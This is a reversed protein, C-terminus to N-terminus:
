NESVPAVTIDRLSMNLVHHNLGAVGKRSLYIQRSHVLFVWPADKRVIQVMTKIIESRRRCPMLTCLEDYLKDFEANSYSGYNFGHRDLTAGSRFLALFNEVDPYDAFWSLWALQFDGRGCRAV